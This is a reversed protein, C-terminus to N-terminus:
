QLALVERPSDLVICDHEFCDRGRGGIQASYGVPAEGPFLVVGGFNGESQSKWAMPRGFHTKVSSQEVVTIDHLNDCFRELLRCERSIKEFLPHLMKWLDEEAEPSVEGREEILRICYDFAAYWCEREHTELRRLAQDFIDLVWNSVGTSDFELTLERHRYKVMFLTDSFTAEFKKLFRRICAEIQGVRGDNFDYFWREAFPADKALGQSRLKEFLPTGWYVNMRNQLHQVRCLGSDRIWRYQLKFEDFRMEPEFMIYGCRIGDAPLKLIDRLIHIARNNDDVTTGKDFRKLVSDVGAEFGIFIRDLGVNMFRRMLEPEITDARMEAYFNIDLNERELADCFHNAWRLGANSPMLFLDDVFSFRRVGFESRLAKMEEIISEPARRVVRHDGYIQHISCFSCKAYCGRSAVMYASSIRRGSNRIITLDRRAPPPVSGLDIQRSRSSNEVIQKGSRFTLGKIASLDSGDSLADALEVIAEEGEGRVVSDIQACDGLITSHWTTPLIGGCTIHLEPRRNRLVQALQKSAFYGRQSSISIGVLGLGTNALLREAAEDPHLNLLECNISLVPYGRQELAATLYGLALCERYRFRNKIAAEPIFPLVLGVVKNKSMETNSMKADEGNFNENVFIGRVSSFGVDSELRNELGVAFDQM